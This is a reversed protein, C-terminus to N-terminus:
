KPVHAPKTVGLISYSQLIKACRMLRIDIKYSFWHNTKIRNRVPKPTYNDRLYCKHSCSQLDRDSALCFIRQHSEVGGKILSSQKCSRSPIGQKRVVVEWDLDILKRIREVLTRGVINNSRKATINQVVVLSDIHLEVARFNLREAHKLGVLVGWLEALYANGFGLFIL